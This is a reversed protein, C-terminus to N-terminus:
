LRTNADLETLSLALRECARSLLIVGPWQGKENWLWRLGMPLMCWTSPSPARSKDIVYELVVMVPVWKYLQTSQLMVPYLTKGLSVVRYSVDRDRARDPGPSIHWQSDFENEPMAKIQWREVEWYSKFGFMLAWVSQVFRTGIYILIYIYIYLKAMIGM